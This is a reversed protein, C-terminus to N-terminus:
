SLLPETPLYIYFSAGVGNPCDAFIYGNHNSVIRKCIALGIGTGDFQNRDHLRQFIIFIKEAFEKKFGIGNDSVRILHFQQDKHSEKVNPIVEGAVLQHSIHVEPKVNERHYKISNSLLNQFLQEMQTDYADIAPLPDCCIIAKSEEITQALNSTVQTMIGNLDVLEPHSGTNVIRSFALLDQILAQMRQSSIDIEILMQYVDESLEHRYKSITRDAFSRIKRLPEQLDHSAVYAFQELESNSRNLNEIKNELSLRYLKNRSIERDLLIFASTLFVLAVLVLIVNYTYTKQTYNDRSVTRTHLLKQEVMIMESTLRVSAEIERSRGYFAATYLSDSPHQVLMSLDRIHSKLNGLHENLLYTRRKLTASHISLSDLKERKESLSKLSALTKNLYVTDNSILYSNSLYAAKYIGASVDNVISIIFESQDVKESYYILEKNIANYSHSLAVILLLSTVLLARTIWKLQTESLSRKLLAYKHLKM